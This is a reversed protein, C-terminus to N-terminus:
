KRGALEITRGKWEGGRGARHRLASSVTMATYLAGIGPLCLAWAPSLRSLRLVPQYSAAMIAWAALGALALWPSGGGGAVALGAATVAVPVLYLWIM